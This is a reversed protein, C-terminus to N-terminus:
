GFRLINLFGVHNTSGAPVKGSNAGLACRNSDAQVRIQIQTSTNGNTDILFTTRLSFPATNLAPGTTQHFSFPIEMNTNTNIAQISSIIGDAGGAGSRHGIVSADIYYEGQPLTITGTSTNLSLSIENTSSHSEAVVNDYIITQWTNPTLNIGIQGIAAASLHDGSTSFLHSWLATGRNCTDVSDIIEDVVSIPCPQGDLSLNLRNNSFEWVFQKKTNDDFTVLLGQGTLIIDNVQRAM